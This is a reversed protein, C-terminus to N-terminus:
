PNGIFQGLLVRPLVPSPLDPESLPRVLPLTPLSLARTEQSGITHNLAVHPWCPWLHPGLGNPPPPHFSLPSLKEM